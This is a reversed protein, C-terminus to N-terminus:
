SEEITKILAQWCIAPKVTMYFWACPWDDEGDYEMYQWVKEIFKRRLKQKEIRDWIEDWCNRYDEPLWEFWEFPRCEKTLLGTSYDFLPLTYADPIGDSTDWGMWRAVMKKEELLTM